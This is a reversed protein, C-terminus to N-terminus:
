NPQSLSTRPEPPVPEVAQIRYSERTRNSAHLQGDRMEYLEDAKEAVVPDHTVTLVATDEQKTLEYLIRVTEAGTTTDLEGTPEDALILKPHNALARAIAVRQQEGGSLEDPLHNLRESLGVRNLLTIAREKAERTKVKATQLPLQVNELATLVPILNHFQFIFGIKHRRLQTLEGDKMGGLDRGDILVRGSTPKDLTGILNLLTTKGSGSPGTVVVFQGHYLTLNVGRVAQVTVKGIKYSKELNEAQAVPSGSM